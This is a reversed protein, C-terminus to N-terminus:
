RTTKQRKKPPESNEKSVAAIRTHGLLTPEHNQAVWRQRRGRGGSLDLPPTAERQPRRRPAKTSVTTSEQNPPPVCEPTTVTLNQAVAEQTPFPESATATAIGAQPLSVSSPPTPALESVATTAIEARAPSTSSLADPAHPSPFAIDVVIDSFTFAPPDATLTVSQLHTSPAPLASSIASHSGSLSVSSPPSARTDSETHSSVTNSYFLNTADSLVPQIGTQMQSLFSDSTMGSELNQPASAACAMSFDFNHAFNLAALHPDPSAFVPNLTFGTMNSDLSPFAASDFPFDAMNSDASAFTPDLSFGLGSFMDNGFPPFVIDTPKLGAQVLPASINEFSPSSSPPTDSSASIDPMSLITGNGPFVQSISVHDDTPQSVPPPNRSVQPVLSHDNPVTLIPTQVNSVRLTSIDNSTLSLPASAPDLVDPVVRAPLNDLIPMPSAINEPSMPTLAHSTDGTALNAPSSCSGGETFSSITPPSSTDKDSPMCPIDTSLLPEPSMVSSNKIFACLSFPFCLNVFNGYPQAYTEKYKTTTQAFNHGEPTTGFHYRHVVSFQIVWGTEKSLTEFFTIIMASQGDIAQQYSAPTSELVDADEIDPIRTADAEAKISAKVEDSEQEYALATENKIIKLRDGNSLSRGGIAQKM